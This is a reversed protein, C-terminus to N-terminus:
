KHYENLLVDKFDNQISDREKLVDILSLEKYRDQIELYTSETLKMRELPPVSLLPKYKQILEHIYQDSRSQPNEQSSVTAKLYEMVYHETLEAEKKLIDVIDLDLELKDIFRQIDQLGIKEKMIRLLGIVGQTSLYHDTLKGYTVEFNNLDDDTYNKVLDIPRPVEKGQNNLEEAYQTSKFVYALRWANREFDGTKIGQVKNTDIIYEFLRFAANVNKYVENSEANATPDVDHIYDLLDDIHKKVADDNIDYNKTTLTDVLNIIFFDTMSQIHKENTVDFNIMISDIENQTYNRM